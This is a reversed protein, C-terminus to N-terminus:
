SGTRPNAFSVGSDVLPKTARGELLFVPLDGWLKKLLKFGFIECQAFDLLFASCRSDFIRAPVPAQWLLTM